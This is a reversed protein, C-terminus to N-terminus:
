VIMEVSTSFSDSLISCENMISVRMFTLVSPIYRLIIVTNVFFEGGLMISLLSFTFVNGSIEPVLCSHVSEGSRHLVANFTRTVVILCFFSNFVVWVPFSSIFSDSICIVHYEIYLISFSNSSIVFEALYCFVFNVYWFIQQM